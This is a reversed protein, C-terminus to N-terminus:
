KPQVRDFSSACARSQRSSKAGSSMCASELKISMASAISARFIPTRGPFNGFRGVLLDFRQNAIEVRENRRSAEGLGQAVPSRYVEM